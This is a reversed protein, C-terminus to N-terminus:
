RGENNARTGNDTGYKGTIQFWEIDFIYHM